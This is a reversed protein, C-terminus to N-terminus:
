EIKEVVWYGSHTELSGNWTRVFTAEGRLLSSTGPAERIREWADLGLKVHERCDQRACECAFCEDFDAVGVQEVSNNLDRVRENVERFVAHGDAAMTAEVLEGEL